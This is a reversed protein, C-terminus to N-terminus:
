AARLYFLTRSLLDHNDPITLLLPQKLSPLPHLDLHLHLYLESPPRTSSIYDQKIWGCSSSSSPLLLFSQLNFTSLHLSSPSFFCYNILLPRAASPANFPAGTIFVAPQKWLM